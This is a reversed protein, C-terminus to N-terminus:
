FSKIFPSTILTSNVDLADQVVVVVADDFIVIVTLVPNVGETFRAAVLVVIHALVAIMKM